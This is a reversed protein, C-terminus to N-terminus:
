TYENNLRDRLAKYDIAKSVAELEADTARNLVYRDLEGVLGTRLVNSTIPHAEKHLAHCIAVIAWKENLQRGQYIIHHHWEIKGQCKHKDHLACVKYLPDDALEEKLPQPIPRM